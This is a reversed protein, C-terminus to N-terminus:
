RGRALSHLISHSCAKCPMKLNSPGKLPFPSKTILTQLCNKDSEMAQTRLIYCCCFAGRLGSKPVVTPGAKSTTSEKMNARCHWADLSSECLGMCDLLSTLLGFSLLIIPSAAKARSCTHENCLHPCVGAGGPALHPTHMPPAESFNPHAFSLQNIPRTFHGREQKRWTLNQLLPASHKRHLM